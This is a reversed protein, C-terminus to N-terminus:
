PLNQSADSLGALYQSKAVVQRGNTLYAEPPILTKHRVSMQNARRIVVVSRSTNSYRNDGRLCFGSQSNWGRPRVAALRRILM